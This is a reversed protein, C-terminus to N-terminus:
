LGRWANPDGAPLGPLVIFCSIRERNMPYVANPTTFFEKKLIQRTEPNQVILRRRAAPVSQGNSNDHDSRTIRVNWNRREVDIASIVAM